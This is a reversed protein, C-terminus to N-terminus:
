VRCFLINVGNICCRVFWNVRCRILRGFWLWLWLFVVGNCRGNMILVMVM